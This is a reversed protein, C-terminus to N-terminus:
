NTKKKKSKTMLNTDDAYRLNYLTVFLWVSGFHGQMCLCLVKKGTAAKGWHFNLM